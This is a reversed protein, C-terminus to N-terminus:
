LKSDLESIQIVTSQGGVKVMVSLPFAGTPVASTILTQTAADYRIWAPLPENNPLTVQVSSGAVAPAVVQEPLVIVLGSGATATGAPVLVAVLGNVQQSPTNITNVSVGSSSGVAGSVPAASSSAATPTSSATFVTLTPAAYNSTSAPLLTPTVVTVAQSRIEGTQNTALTLTYNNGNNGDSIQYGTQVTLTKGSGPNADAYAELLHTVTDSGKLGSVNPAAQADTKGDFSKTNTLATITLSTPTVTGITGAATSPLTYNSLQTGSNSVFDSSSMSATVLKSSGVNKDAYSGSTRSVSAGEGSAFGTLTFNGAALTAATTGDYVKASTGTLAAGLAAQTVTGINGSATTPLTYNSMQTGSNSVFDISSMSATVPKSSGVNQDAYSGLTQSVSAGESSVFGTLTFNGAALTAATTGDYPKTSTGMLAASLPAKNVTYTSDVYTFSYNSASGTGLVPASPTVTFSGAQAVGSAAGSFGSPTQTVSAVTDSGVLDSTGFAISAAASAYSRVGNYTTLGATNTVTVSKPSIVGVYGSVSTPLVYNTLNTVGNAAYDSNALTVSVLKGTGANATDYSGSTQTITASDSGMFGSFVYNSPILTATNSGDYVKGVTGALAVSTASVSVNAPSITLSGGTYAIAYNSNSLGSPTITYSGANVAAQSDGGYTLTGGLISSTEGNVLGSYSVGAGGSYAVADYSKSDNNARVLLPAATITGNSGSLSSGATLTYNGADTGGLSLGSVAYSLGTAAGASAYAGVGSAVAVKDTGVLGTLGFAPNVMVTTGDYTKSLGSIVAATLGKKDVQLSGVVNVTNSYNSSTNTIATAGVQYSGAGLNGATSLAPSLAGLTLATSGGAGDSLTFASGSISASSTLNVVANGSSSMYSVSSVTYSASSGYTTSANVLRVLLQDAPVITYSGAAYSLNYNSSSSLGSAVLVGTYTGAGTASNSRSVSLTGGLVSSTQNAVFGSYSVGSYGATDSLGVFRADNNATVTLPAKAVTVLAGTYSFSYNSATGTSLVAASPTVTFSGANAVNGVVVGAGSATETVTRVADQGVLGSVTFSSGKALDAYSTLGDYTTTRAIDVVTVPKPSVTYNVASGSSFVYGALTLSPVLTLAYTNASTTAAMGSTVAAPGSLLLSGTVGSSVSVSSTVASGALSFSQAAGPIGSVSLYSCASASSSYCYNLTTAATGYTSSQGSVPLLYVNTPSERFLAYYGTGSAPLSSSSKNYQVFQTTKSSLLNTLALGTSTSASGSYFVAIGGTGVLFNPSGSLVINGGTATGAATTSGATLNLAPTSTNSSTSSTVVSQSVTLDGSRTTVSVTGTSSIGSYTSSGVTVQGITLASGNVVSLAGVNSNTALTSLANSTNSLVTSGTGLLALGYTNGSVVGSLTLQTGAVNLLSSAGLSVAGSLSSTGTSTSITGGNLTIAEAGVAVNRLDLTAGSAVTTGAATSGLGAANSIALSGASITTLGTFTNTGSLVLTGVGTKTLGFSTGSVVGSLTLQTGAVDVTSSATMAVTGSVSSTGTSNALTGGNLTIAEAGVTVNQLDLTAGSAVTTGGAVTGLGAANSVALTGASITTLGTFTNTGSLVLSGAGTKTLGFGTGSVMGSLTLQTGAVDVTSSATMAVTGSVSSTGTSTALTGGNVTIAEAGVTVNQLDLTAGSAVTTGGAVTGLGTANTIALTGGSVTTAGAYTNAGTLLWTGVDQKTLTGSTTGIISSISGGQAGGLTLGFTAGSVTGTNSLAITGTGGIISSTAGLTVLGAYTAGTTSSNLLAGSSSIGTGNLTLGGTSTLTQGNLDLAAGNTVSVAGAGLATANGAKLTGASITTGGGFTNAGSLTTTGAGLKSVSGSGSIIGSYALADSRNFALVGNNVLDGSLSGSTSGAGIQLTGASITTGSPTNTGSLIVTATQSTGGNITLANAGSIGGAVTISGASGGISSASGLTLAGAYTGATASSNTLAGASSIGTGNLSLAGTSTMTKGNLDLAAGSAVSVAGTGFATVSGAQLVGASITTGGSYTNAGSLTVTSSGQNTLSGVGSILGSLTVNSLGTFTISGANQVATSISGANATDYNVASGANIIAGDISASNSANPAYGLDWNAGVSWLGGSAGIFTDNLISSIFSTCATLACLVPLGSNVGTAYGWGSAVTFAGSSNGFSSSFGAASKMSTTSLATVGSTASVSGGIGGTTASLSSNKTSNWYNDTFTRGNGLGILGGLKGSSGGTQTVTGSAYNGSISYATTGPLYSILGGANGTASTLTVDGTAYSTSISANTQATGTLGGVDGPGSVNGSAFSSTISGGYLYGVLGGGNSGSTLLTVNGTAYSGSVTVPQSFGVLGGVYNLGTVSGTAYSNTITLGRVDGILGGVGNGTGSVNGTAYSNTITNVSSSTASGILGGVNAAGSVQGTAFSQDIKVTSTGYNPVTGVLGGVGSAGTGTVNGTAYSNSIYGATGVLGGASGSSNLVTVNVASYSNAIQPLSYSSSDFASVLGGLSTQGSMTGTVGINAVRANSLAYAILGVNGRSYSDLNPRYEYLSTVAHGLGDFVSSFRCDCGSWQKGLPLFGLGGNTNTWTSTASADIDNGLAFYGANYNNSAAMGQLTYNNSSTTYDTSTGLTTIVTYNNGSIKLVPTASSSILRTADTARLNISGNFGNGTPGGTPTGAMGMLVMGNATYGTVSTSSPNLALAGTGTVTLSGTKTSSGVNVNYGANLTLTNASWSVADYININGKTGTTSINGFKTSSTDTGTGAQLTVSTSTLLTSLASGSINGTSSVEFDNPDILYSGAEGAPALTSIVVSDALKVQAGSTEIFGGNGGLDGGKASLTGDVQTSSSANSLDAIVEIRGGNGASGAAADATIRSTPALEIRHSAQLRIVGGDNVLGTASLTGSNKVVGGLLSNAAQASLIILGGPAQVANGNDVLTQITAPTVLVNTLQNNSGFQLQFSEGAAMAVTGGMQAVVVGQNVVEPALLAIYGGLGATLSGQNIVSGTAGNRSFNYNGALFDSDSIGHTTATFSGVDVSSGPAFYVGNPNSLFVQGNATIQGFIQSPNADLVRNLLVSSSGPQTINVKANAGVNFSQWNVIAQNSSQQVAMSAATATQTQSIAVAGAAVQAGTPLQNILPPAALAWGTGAAGVALLAAATVLRMASKKGRASVHEAVAVWTNLAESYVLKYSSNM